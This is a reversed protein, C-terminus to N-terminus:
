RCMDLNNHRHLKEAGAKILWVANALCGKRKGFTKCEFVFHAGEKQAM